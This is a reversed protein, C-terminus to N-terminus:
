PTNEESPGRQEQESEPDEAGQAETAEVTAPAELRVDLRWAGTGDRRYSGLLLAYINGPEVDITTTSLTSQARDDNFRRAGQLDEGTIIALVTDFAASVVEAVLTGASEPEVCLQPSEPFFGRCNAIGPHWLCSYLAESLTGERTIRQGSQLTITESCDPRLAPTAALQLEGSLMRRPTYSGVYVFWTGPQLTTALQPQGEGGSDDDCRLESCAEEDCRLLALTSDRSQSDSFSLLLDQEEGVEIRAHPSEPYFGVCSTGLPTRADGRPLQISLAAGSAELLPLDAPNIDPPVPQDRTTQARPRTARSPAEETHDAPAREEQANDVVPEDSRQKCATLALLAALAFTTRHAM